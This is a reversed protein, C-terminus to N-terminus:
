FLLLLDDSEIGSPLSITHTTGAILTKASSTTAAIEPFANQPLWNMGDYRDWTSGQNWDGSQRSRFDGDTQGWVGGSVFLLAM